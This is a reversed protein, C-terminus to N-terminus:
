RKSWSAETIVANHYDSGKSSLSYTGSSLEIKTGSGASKLASQLQSNNSVRVTGM